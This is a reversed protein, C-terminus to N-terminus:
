QDDLGSTASSRIVAAVRECMAASLGPFVGVFLAEKMITDAGALDGVIRMSSSGSKRLQTFVPQRTLNGGFLMRNGIRARDLAVALGRRTM